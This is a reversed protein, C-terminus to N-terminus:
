ESAKIQMALRGSTARLAPFLAALLSCGCALVLTVGVMGPDMFALAAYDEPQRRVLYLGAQAVVLGVCGGVVGIIGAETCLQAIIDRRRAGLARRVSIERNRRQFRAFILASMNLLCVILFAVCLTLQLKVENPIIRGQVLYEKLSVLRPPTAKEFRGQSVQERVYATMFRQYASRQEDTQLEIWYQLWASSADELRNTGRTPSWSFVGSSVSLELEMATRLPIYFDDAGKFVDQQLDTHFRPRPRWDAVVGIVHFTTTGLMVTKGLSSSHPNLRRALSNSLVVVRAHATEEDQSWARGAILTMGFIDFIDRTAYQGTSFFPSSVGPQAAVLLRGAALAVQRPAPGEDMFRRADTWSLAVRPDNGGRIEYSAPLPDLFPRFLQASRDPLPDWSMTRVVILMTMSAGIGVGLALVLALSTGRTELLRTRALRVYYFFM